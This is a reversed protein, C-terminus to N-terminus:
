WEACIHTLLRTWFELHIFVDLLAGYLGRLTQMFIVYHRAWVHTPSLYVFSYMWFQECHEIVVRQVSTIRFAMIDLPNASTFRRFTKKKLCLISSTFDWKQLERWFRSGIQVITLLIIEDGLTRHKSQRCPRWSQVTQLATVWVVVIRVGM